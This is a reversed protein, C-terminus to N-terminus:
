GNVGMFETIYARTNRPIEITGPLEYEFNSPTGTARDRNDVYLKRVCLRDM